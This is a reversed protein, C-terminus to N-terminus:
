VCSISNDAAGSNGIGAFQRKWFRRQYKRRCGSIDGFRWLLQKGMHWFGQSNGPSWAGVKLVVFAEAQTLGGMFSPLNFYGSEGDFRVVPRDGAVEPVWMPQNAPTSQVADNGNGSQDAWFSILATVGRQTVGADAKLWLALEGLPMDAGTALTTANTENSYDSWVVV